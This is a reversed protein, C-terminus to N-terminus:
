FEGEGPMVIGGGEGGMMDTLDGPGGSSAGSSSEVVGIEHCMDPCYYARMEKCDQDGSSAACSRRIRVYRERPAAVIVHRQVIISGDAGLVTLFSAGPARPVLVITRASDVLAGVHEPNGVLVSGAPAPLRLIESRDMTLRLPPDTTEHPPDAIPQREGVFSVPAAEVNAVSSTTQANTAADREMMPVDGGDQALAPGALLLLAAAALARTRRHPTRIM